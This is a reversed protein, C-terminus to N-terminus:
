RVRAQVRSLCQQEDVAGGDVGTIKRDLAYYAGRAVDFFFTVEVRCGMKDYTWKRRSSEATTQSPEGLLNRVGQESLGTLSAPMAPELSARPPERKPLPTISAVAPPKPAERQASANPSRQKAPESGAAAARNDAHANKPPRKDQSLRYGGLAPDYKYSYTGGDEPWRDEYRPADAVRASDRGSWPLSCSSLFFAFAVAVGIRRRARFGVM